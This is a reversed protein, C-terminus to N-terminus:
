AKIYIRQREGLQDITLMQQQSDTESLEVMDLEVPEVSDLSACPLQTASASSASSSTIAFCSLTALQKM